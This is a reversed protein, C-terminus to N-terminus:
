AVQDMRLEQALEANITKLQNRESNLQLITDNLREQLSDCQATLYKIENLSNVRRDYLTPERTHEKHAQALMQEVEAVPISRRPKTECVNNTQSPQKKIAKKAM